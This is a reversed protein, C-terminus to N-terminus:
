LGTRQEITEDWSFMEDCLPVFMLTTKGIVLRDGRRIDMIMNPAFLNGNIYARTKCPTAGGAKYGRNVTDYCIWMSFERSVSNDKLAAEYEAHRGIRNYADMKLPYSEGKLPGDIAVLWGAIYGKPANEDTETKSDDEDPETKSVPDGQQYFSGSFGRANGGGFGGGFGGNGPETNDFGFSSSNGYNKMNSFGSTETATFDGQGSKKGFM